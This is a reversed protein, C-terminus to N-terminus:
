KLRYEAASVDDDAPGQVSMVRREDEELCIATLCGTRYAGTDLAIRNLFLEAQPVISHGHVVVHEHLADSQLFDERIWHLDQRSQESLTLGPRIGAHVLLYDGFRITDSMAKMFTLHAKPISQILITEIDLASKDKLEHPYVGYSTACQLGGHRLWEPLISRKGTLGQILASEHNGSVCRIDLGQINSEILTDIVKRSAPGRDIVDGLSVLFTPKVPRGRMDSEIESLLAQLLDHRGHIDGVVYCRKGEGGRAQELSILPRSPLTSGADTM